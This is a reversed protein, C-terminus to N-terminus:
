CAWPCPWCPASCPAWPASSSPSGPPMPWNACSGPRSAVRRDDVRLLTGDDGRYELRPDGFWVDPFSPRASEAATKALNALPNRGLSLEDAALLSGIAVAILLGYALVLALFGLRGSHRRGPATAGLSM